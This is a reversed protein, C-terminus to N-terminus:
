EAFKRLNKMCKTVNKVKEACKKMCKRIKHFKCSIEYPIIKVAKIMM